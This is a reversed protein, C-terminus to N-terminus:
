GKIPREKDMIIVRGPPSGKFKKRGMEEGRAKKVALFEGSGNM